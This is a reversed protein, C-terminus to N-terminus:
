CFAPNTVTLVGDNTEFRGLTTEFRSNPAFDFVLNWGDAVFLRRL